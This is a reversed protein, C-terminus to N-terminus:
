SPERHMSFLLSAGPLSRVPEVFIEGTIWQAGDREGATARGTVPQQYAGPRGSTGALVISGGDGLTGTMVLSDGILIALSQDAVAVSASLNGDGDLAATYSGVLSDLTPLEACGTLARGVAAVLDAISVEGDASADFAPCSAIAQQGLTIALGRILESVDVRGDGNCDGVCQAPSAIVDFMASQLANGLDGGQVRILHPGLPLPPITILVRYTGGTDGHISTLPVDDISVDARRGSHIAYCEGSLDVVTGAAGAAPAVTANPPCVDYTPTPTVCIGGCGMPGGPCYTTLGYPCPLPLCACTPTPTSTPTDSVAPTATPTADGVVVTFSPSDQETFQFYTQGPCGAISEYDVNLSLRAIGPATALLDFTVSGLPGGPTIVFVGSFDTDAGILTYRPLGGEGSVTFSVAVRDGVSPATPEASFSFQLPILLYNATAYGDSGAPCLLSLPAGSSTTASGPVCRLPHSCGEGPSPSQDSLYVMCRYVIGGDGVPAATTIVAHVGASITGDSGGPVFAFRASTASVASGPECDPIGDGRDAVYAYPGFDIEHDIATVSQGNVRLSVDVPIRTGPVGAGSGVQAAIADAPLTPIATPTATLARAAPVVM